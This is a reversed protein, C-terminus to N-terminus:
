PHEAIEQNRPSATMLSEIVAALQVPPGMLQVYSHQGAADVQWRTQGDDDVQVHGGGVSKWYEPEADRVAFLAAAQDYSPQGQDIAKRGSYPRLEYAKRVPNDDPTQKLQAGTILINGVEFGHWRNRGAM